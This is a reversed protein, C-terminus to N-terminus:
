HCLNRFQQATYLHRVAAVTRYERAHTVLAVDNLRLKMPHMGTREGHATTSLVGFSMARHRRLREHSHPPLQPFSTIQRLAKCQRQLTSQLDTLLSAHM